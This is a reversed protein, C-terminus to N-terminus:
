LNFKIYMTTRSSSQQIVESSHQSQKTFSNSERYRKFWPSGQRRSKFKLKWKYLKLKGKYSKEM